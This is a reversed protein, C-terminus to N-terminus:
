RVERSLGIARASISAASSPLDTVAMTSSFARKSSSRLM